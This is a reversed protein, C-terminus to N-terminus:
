GWRHSLAARRRGHLTMARTTPKGSPRTTCRQTPLESATSPGRGRRRRGRRGGGRRPPLPQGPRAGLRTISISDRHTDFGSANAPSSLGRRSLLQGNPSVEATRTRRGRRRGTPGDSGAAHEAGYICDLSIYPFRLWQDPESERSTDNAAQRLIYAPLVVEKVCTCQHRSPDRVSQSEGVLYIATPIYTFRLLSEGVLYLIINM